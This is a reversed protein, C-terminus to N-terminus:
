SVSYLSIVSSEAMRLERLSPYKMKFTYKHQAFLNSTLYERCCKTEEQTECTLSSYKKSLTYVRDQLLKTFM